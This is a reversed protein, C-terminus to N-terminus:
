SMRAHEQVHKRRDIMMSYKNGAPAASSATSTSGSRSWGVVEEDLSGGGALVNTKFRDQQEHVRALAQKAFDDGRAIAEDAAHATRALTADSAGVLDIADAQSRAEDARALLASIEAGIDRKPNPLSDVARQVDSSGPM